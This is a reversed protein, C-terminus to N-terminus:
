LNLGVVFYCFHSKERLIFKLYLTVTLRLKSDRFTPYNFCARNWLTWVNMSIVSIQSYCFDPIASSVLVCKALQFLLMECIMYTHLYQWLELHLPPIPKGVNLSWTPIEGWFTFVLLCTLPSFNLSLAIIYQHLIM